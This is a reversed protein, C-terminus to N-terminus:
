REPVAPHDQDEVPADEGEMAESSESAPRYRHANAKMSAEILAHAREASLPTARALLAKLNSAM